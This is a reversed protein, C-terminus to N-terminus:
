HRREIWEENRFIRNRLSDPKGPVHLCWHGEHFYNPDDNRGYLPLYNNWGISKPPIMVVDSWGSKFSDIMAQQERWGSNYRPNTRMGYIHDLWELTRKGNSVAFVGANWNLKDKQIVVKDDITLLYANLDFDMGVTTADADMWVVWDYRKLEDIVIPIKSWVAHLSPLLNDSTRLYDIGWKECYQKKRRDTYKVYEPESGYICNTAIAIKM